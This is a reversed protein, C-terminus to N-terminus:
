EEKILLEEIEKWNMVRKLENKEQNMTSNMLFVNIGLQRVTQCIDINDDIFIDVHEERCIAKKDVASTILKDYPIKYKSLYKKTLKEPDKFCNESRATILIIEFGKEKLHELVKKCDPKVGIKKSYHIM